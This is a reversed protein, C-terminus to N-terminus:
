QHSESGANKLKSNKKKKNKKSKNHKSDERKRGKQGEYFPPRSGIPIIIQTRTKKKNMRRREIMKLRMLEEEDHSKSRQTRQVNLMRQGNLEDDKSKQIELQLKEIEKAHEEQLSKLKAELESQALSAALYKEKYQLMELKFVNISKSNEDLQTKLDEIEKEFKKKEEEQQQERQSKLNIIERLKRIEQKLAFVQESSGEFSQSQKVLQEHNSRTINGRILSQLKVIIRIIRKARYEDLRPEIGPKLFVKSIGIKYHKLSRFDVASLISKCKNALNQSEERTLMWYRDVFESHPISSPFGKRSIVVGQEIASQHLQQMILKPDIIGPKQLFNPTFCRIFSPRTTEIISFIKDFESKIRQHLPKQTFSQSFM